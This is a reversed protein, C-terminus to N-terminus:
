YVIVSPAVRGKEMADFATNISFNGLQNGLPGQARRRFPQSGPGKSVFSECTQTATNDGTEIFRLDLGGGDDVIRVFGHRCDDGCAATVAILPSSVHSEAASM